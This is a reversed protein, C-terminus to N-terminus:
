ARRGVFRQLLRIILGLAILGGFIAFILPFNDTFIETTTASLASVGTSIADTM